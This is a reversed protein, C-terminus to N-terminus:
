DVLIISNSELELVCSCKPCGDSPSWSLAQGNCSECRVNNINNNFRAYREFSPSEVAEILEHMKIYEAYEKRQLYKFLKEWFVKKTWKVSDHTSTKGFYLSEEGKMVEGQFWSVDKKFVEQFEESVAKSLLNPLASDKEYSYDKSTLDIDRFSWNRRFVKKCRPCLYYHGPGSMLNYDGDESSM